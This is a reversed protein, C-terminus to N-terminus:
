EIHTANARMAEIKQKLQVSRGESYTPWPVFPKVHNLGGFAIGLPCRYAADHEDIRILVMSDCEIDDAGLLSASAIGIKDPEGDFFRWHDITTFVIFAGAIVGGAAMSRRAINLPHPRDTKVEWALIAVSTIGFLFFAFVNYEHIGQTHTVPMFSWLAGLGALLGSTPHALAILRPRGDAAKLPFMLVAHVYLLLTAAVLFPM